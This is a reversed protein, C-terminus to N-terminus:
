LKEKGKVDIVYDVKNVSKVKYPGQWSMVLKNSSDPLLLLVEDGVQFSHKTSKMDFYTM